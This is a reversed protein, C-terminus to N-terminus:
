GSAQCRICRTATPIAGLRDQGISLGCRECIGYTGQDLRAFAADVEALRAVARGLRDRARELEVSAMEGTGFGEALAGGTERRGLHNRVEAELAEVLDARSTREQELLARQRALFEEDLLERQPATAM